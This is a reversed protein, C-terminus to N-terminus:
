WLEAESEDIVDMDDEMEDEESSSIEEGEVSELGYNDQFSSLPKVQPKFGM